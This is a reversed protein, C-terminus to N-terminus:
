YPNYYGRYPYPGGYYGQPYGYYRPAYYQEYYDRRRQEAILTGVTGIFAGMVAAAAAHNAPRYRRKAASFDTAIGAMTVTQGPSPPQQANAPLATTLAGTVAAMRIFTRFKTRIALDTRDPMDFDKKERGDL